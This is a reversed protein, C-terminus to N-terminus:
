FERRDRGNPDQVYSSGHTGKVKRWGTRGGNGTAAPRMLGDAMKGAPEWHQVLARPTAKADGWEEALGRHRRRLEYLCADPDDATGNLSRTLLERLDSTIRGYGARNRQLPEGQLEVVFDWVVDKERPKPPPAPVQKKKVGESKVVEVHATGASQGASTGASLRASRKRERDRAKREDRKENRERWNHIQIAGDTDDLWLRASILEARVEDDSGITRQQGTTLLGGREFGSSYSIGHVYVRFARDSLDTMKEHCWIREDLWAM